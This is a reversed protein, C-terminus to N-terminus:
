ITEHFQLLGRSVLYDFILIFQNKDEDLLKGRSHKRNRGHAAM